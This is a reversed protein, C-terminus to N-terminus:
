NEYFKNETERLLRDANGFMVKEKDSDTLLDDMGVGGVYVAPNCVPFDTGFLFREAGFKKIGYALMGQRFIGTGSLDLYYNESKEMRALHRTFSDKEGPHAAVLINKPHKEVMRDIADENMTHFSFIMNLELALDLIEDMERSSYDSWGFCYPVIEGILNVGISHMREIEELSEKLYSPHIHFGPIYFGNYEEALTLAINNLERIGSWPMDPVAPVHIVSGCIHEIGLNNMYNKVEDRGVGVDYKYQCINEDITDFPHTHFDIIPTKMYTEKPTTQQLPSEHIARINCYNTQSVPSEHIAGVPIMRKNGQRLLLFDCIKLWM